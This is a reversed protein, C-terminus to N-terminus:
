KVKKMQAMLEAEMVVKGGVFGQGFMHCIGRRIPSVLETKFIITDGPLVKQKFKAKDIKMFYTLYNEPDPVSSLLLIGGAQAMAEVQLVGPMVPAGPFHGQFYDENMTVNKIGVVHNESLEIIKDILLFPPRHPLMEMIQHIDKVPKQQSDYIPISMKMIENMKKAFAVNAKHGPKKVVLKGKIPSGILSLDGIVDLLKHRAPENEYRLELNNLTGNKQIKVEKKNFLQALNSLKEKSLEKDALVIANELDGGKIMGQNLLNELEHLFVFTRANACETRFETIDTIIAESNNLIDTGYDIQVKLSFDDSPELFYESGTEEVKFYINRKPKFFSKTAEQEIVQAKELIEVFPAASGDLIPLELNDMEIILNDIELAAAAALVHETTQIIIGGKSLQTSRNTEGVLDISALIEPTGELDTRVFKIGTNSEAPKFIVNTELGTHLGVGRIKQEISITNQKKM